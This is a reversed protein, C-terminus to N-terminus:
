LKKDQTYYRVLQARLEESNIQGAIVQQMRKLQEKSVQVGEIRCSGAIQEALFAANPVKNSM